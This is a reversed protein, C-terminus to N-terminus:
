PPACPTPLKLFPSCASPPSCLRRPPSPLSADEGTTLPFGPPQSHPYPRAHPPAFPSRPISALARRQSVSSLLVSQKVAFHGQDQSVSHAREFGPLIGPGRPAPMRGAAEEQRTGVDGLDVTNSRRGAVGMSVKAGPVTSIVRKHTQASKKLAVSLVRSKAPLSFAQGGHCAMGPSGSVM